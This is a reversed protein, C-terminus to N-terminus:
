LSLRPLKEILTNAAVLFLTASLSRGQPVGMELNTSNSKQNNVNVKISRNSLFNEIFLPLHGRINFNELEQLIHNNWSKDYANEFDLFISVHYKQSAFAEHIETSITCVHDMTNRGRRGGSQCKNLLCKKELFWMLRNNIITDLIKYLCSLLSIPRYSKPNQPDKDPKLIPIILAESWSSPFLHKLFIINYFSLIYELNQDSLNKIM